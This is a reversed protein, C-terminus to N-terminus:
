AVPADPQRSPHALQFAPLQECRQAIGRITPYPALDTEWRLATFLQPILCCDAMGPTNGVCYDGTYPSHRLLAEIAALGDANWHQLWKTKVDAPALGLGASLYNRIKLNGIPSMDSAIAQSLARAQARLIPDGPLLPPTPHSEELYEMIAISQTLVRGDDLMLSPVLRQPNLAAYAAERQQAKVLNIPMMEVAIGKLNLAIRVRYSASSQYYSYLKM